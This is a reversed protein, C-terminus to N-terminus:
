PGILPAPKDRRERGGKGFIKVEQRRLYGVSIKKIRM